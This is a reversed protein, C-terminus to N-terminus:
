AAKAGANLKKYGIILATLGAAAILITVILTGSAGLQGTIVTGIQSIDYGEAHAPNTLILGTTAGTAAAFRGRFKQFWTKKHVEQQEIKEVNQLAM